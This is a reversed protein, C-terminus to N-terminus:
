VHEDNVDSSLQRRREFALSLTGKDIYELEGGMPVGHALRSAVVRHKEALEMLYYATTEGEVTSNTAIILEKIQGQALRADLQDLGLEYPGIGDLPAIHGMLVFYLGHYADSQEIALVDAPGEVVCLVDQRRRADRCFGCLEADSLNRCSQCRQVNQLAHEIAHALEHAQARKHLLLQLAMRQATKVGVGPLCRLAQVLTEFSSSFVM